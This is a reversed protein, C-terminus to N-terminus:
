ILDVEELLKNGIQKWSYNNVVTNRCKKGMEILDYKDVEKIINSVESSENVLFGTVSHNIIEDAAVIREPYNSRYAIVPLGVAMAELIVQGFGEYKSLLIFCDSLHYYDIPNKVYGTFIVKKEIGLDMVMQKLTSLSPGDGVIILLSTANNSVSFAEIVEEVNKEKSLRGVYLFVKSDVPLDYEIRLEEKEAQSIPSYYNTDVGAPLVSIEEENHSYFESIEKRKSESLVIIKDANMMAKQEIRKLQNIYGSLLIKRYFLSRYALAKETFLPLATAQIYVVKINPFLQKTVYAYFPHRSFVVEPEQNSYLKKLHTQIETLRHPVSRVKQILNLDVKRHKSVIIGNEHYYSTEKYHGCVIRVENDDKLVQALNDIYNVIGGYEPKFTTNQFEILM